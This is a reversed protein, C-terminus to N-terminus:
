EPLLPYPSEIWTLTNEDWEMNYGGPHEVPADWQYTTSNFTWSPFPSPSSFVDLVEHYIFGTGAFINRVNNNYSTQIWTGGFGLDNSIYDQGRHEQKDPVVIVRIVTNYEYTIGTTITYGSTIIDYTVGTTICPDEKCIEAFHAM